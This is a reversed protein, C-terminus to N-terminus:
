RLLNLSLVTDQTARMSVIGGPYNPSQGPRLYDTREGEVKSGATTCAVEINNKVCYQFRVELEGSHVEAVGRCNSQNRFSAGKKMTHKPYNKGCISTKPMETSVLLSAPLPVTVTGAAAAPPNLRDSKKALHTVINNLARNIQVVTSSPDGRVLAGISLIVVAAFFTALMAKGIPIKAADEAKSTIFHFGVMLASVVAMINFLNRGIWGSTWTVGSLRSIFADFASINESVMFGVFLGVTLLSVGRMWRKGGHTIHPALAPPAGGAGVPPAPAPAPPAPPPVVRVPAAM